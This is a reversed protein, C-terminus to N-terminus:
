PREIAGPEAITRAELLTRGPVWILMDVAESTLDTSNDTPNRDDPYTLLTTNIRAGM